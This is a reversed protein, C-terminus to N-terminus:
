ESAPVIKFHYNKDGNEFVAGEGKERHATKLKLRFRIHKNNPLRLARFAEYTSKFFGLNQGDCEVTVGDRKLRSSRVETDTWSAAVGDSNSAKTDADRKGMVSEGTAEAKIQADQVSKTLMDFAAASAIVPKPTTKVEEERVWEDPADFGEYGEPAPMNGEPVDLIDGDDNKYEIYGVLADIRKHATETDAFKKIEKYDTRNALHFNANWFKVLDANKVASIAIFKM